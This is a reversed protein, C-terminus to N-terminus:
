RTGAGCCSSWCARPGAGRDGHDAHVLWRVDFIQRLQAEDMGAGTGQKTETPLVVVYKWLVAAAVAVVAFGVVTVAPAM